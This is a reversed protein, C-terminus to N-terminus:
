ISKKFVLMESLQSVLEHDDPTQSMPLQTKKNCYYLNNIISFGMSPIWSPLYIHYM